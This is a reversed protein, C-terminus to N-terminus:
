ETPLVASLADQWGVKKSESQGTKDLSVSLGAKFDANQM